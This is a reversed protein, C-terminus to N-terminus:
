WGVLVAEGLQAALLPEASWWLPAAGSLEGDCRTHITWGEGTGVASGTLGEVYWGILVAGDPGLALAEAGDLGPARAGNQWLEGSELLALVHEGQADVDTALLAPDPAADAGPGVLGDPTAVGLSPGSGAAALAATESLATGERATFVGAPGVLLPEEDFAGLAHAQEAAPVTAGDAATVVQVANGDDVLSWLADGRATADLLVGGATPLAAVVAPDEGVEVPLEGPAFPYVEARVPAAAPNADLDCRAALATRMQLPPPGGECALAFAEALREAETPYASADVSGPDLEATLAEALGEERDLAHCLEHRLTRAMTAAPADPRRLLIPEGPGDYRGLTAPGEALEDRWEVGPVCVGERGSWAAFDALTDALAEADPPLTMEAFPTCPSCALLAALLM